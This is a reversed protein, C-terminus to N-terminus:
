TKIEWDGEGKITGEPDEGVRRMTKRRRRPREGGGEAAGVEPRGWQREEGSGSRNVRQRIVLLVSLELLLQRLDQGLALDEDVLNM